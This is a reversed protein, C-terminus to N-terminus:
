KRTKLKITQCEYMKGHKGIENNGISSIENSCSCPCLEAVVTSTQNIGWLTYSQRVLSKLSNPAPLNDLVTDVYTNCATMRDVTQENTYYNIAEDCNIMAHSLGLNNALLAM